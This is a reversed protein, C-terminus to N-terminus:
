AGVQDQQYEKGHRAEVQHGLVPRMEQAGPRKEQQEPETDAHVEEHMPTMASVAGFTGVVTGRRVLTAFGTVM